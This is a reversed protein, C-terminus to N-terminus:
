KTFQSIAEWPRGVLELGIRYRLNEATIYSAWMITCKIHFAEGSSSRFKLELPDYQMFAVENDLQDTVIGAGSASLNDIVGGYVRGNYLIEARVNAPHRTEKRREM